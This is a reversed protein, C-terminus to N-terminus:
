AAGAEEYLDPRKVAVATSTFVDGAPPLAQGDPRTDKVRYGLGALFAAERADDSHAVGNSFHTQSRVGTFGGHPTRIEFRPKAPTAPAAPKAPAAIPTGVPLDANGPKAPPMQVAPEPTAPAPDTEKSRNSM